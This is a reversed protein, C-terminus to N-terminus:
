LSKLHHYLESSTLTPLFRVQGNNDGQMSRITMSVFLAERQDTLVGLTSSYFVALM